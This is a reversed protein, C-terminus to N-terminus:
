VIYSSLYSNSNDKDGIEWMDTQENHNKPTDISPRWPDIYALMSVTDICDDNKSKIGDATILRIQEFFMNLVKTERMENPWFVKKARFLPLMLNFRSLKDVSPRIEKINFWSNRIMMERQIWSVFGGQQGSVEIGASQPQYEAVKNFLDSVSKDMTRREATGDVWFWDGNANIAWVSIVSFDASQKSSTAFDTTIYFNFNNKNSILSARDYWNNLENEQVLRDEDSSIRLMLEQQFAAVQGSKVSMEYQDKVYEYTFRDEWSGNFEEKTCPFRECIPWVNVDWAGSEVAEYLVDNKNFPTGNFIIKKQTPDLAYDLGKYVTDKITSMSTKSKADDDSVLDDLVALKPRKGFIKTGRIGSKAGFLKLGFRTGSKSQFEIYNDTFKAETIWSQLFESNYYRYEVNKRLSKAGNDMSDSVYIMAEVAGFGDIHGFVGLFLVLYEIQATKGFGRHCLNAIRQRPGAIKDYMKLHAVPTKNSEGQAGNVLKIFNMFKLAFTTPVYDSTDNLSSYDVENLYEDVTKM